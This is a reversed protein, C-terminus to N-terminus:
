LAGVGAQCRGCDRQGPVADVNVRTTDGILGVITAQTGTSCHCSLGLEEMGKLLEQVQGASAGPKLVLIM